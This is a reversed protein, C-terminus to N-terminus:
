GSASTGGVVDIRSTREITSPARERVTSTRSSPFNLPITEFSSHLFALVSLWNFAGTFAKM